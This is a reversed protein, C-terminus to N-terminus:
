IGILKEEERLFFHRYGRPVGQLNGEDDITIPHIKFKSGSREFYLILVDKARVTRKNRVDIRVRDIIHDSHTEVLFSKRRSKVLAGMFTGLQAQARPHLHIEPQQLLFQQRGTTLAADVLLPLVQSVGYGVDSLGHAYGTIQFKVQFPDSASPGFPKIKVTNFLGSSKGFEDLITVLSLWDEQNERYLRAMVIPAHAGEASHAESLPVYVREPKSRVPAGAVPRSAMRAELSHLRETIKDLAESLRNLTKKSVRSSKSVELGKFIYPRFLFYSSFRVFEELPFDIFWSRDVIAEKGRSLNFVYNKKKYKISVVLDGNEQLRGSLTTDTDTITKAIVRPEIGGHGFEISSQLEGGSSGKTAPLKVKTFIKFTESRRKPGGHTHIIDKFSGLDFPDENFKLGTQGKVIDSAIRYMALFTSKGTSNEGVLFTLPSISVFGTDRFCKVDQLRISLM